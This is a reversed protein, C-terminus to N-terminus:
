NLLNMRKIDNSLQLTFIDAGRKNLHAANYFYLTDNCISEHTYDLIPINYDAAIEGYIQYMRGIGKFKQLFETCVPSYVFIVNKGKVHMDQIYAKFITLAEETYTFELSDGSLVLDDEYKMRNNKFGKYFPEKEEPNTLVDYVHFDLFCTCYRWFPVYKDLLSFHQYKDFAEMLERDTFFYPYFQEKEFNTTIGAITGYDISYIITNPEWNQIRCYAYYREVQRNVRSANYGLNYSNVNLVSDIIRPNFHVFARSSGMIVVDNRLEQNYINNWAQFEIINSQRLRQSLFIDAVTFVVM